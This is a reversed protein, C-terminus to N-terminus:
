EKKGDDTPRSDFNDWLTFALHFNNRLKITLSNHTTLRLHGADTLGPFTRV